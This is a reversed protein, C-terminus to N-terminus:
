STIEKSDKYDFIDNIKVYDSENMNILEPIQKPSKSRLLKEDGEIISDLTNSLENTPEKQTELYTKAIDLQSFRKLFWTSFRRGTHDLCQLKESEEENENM